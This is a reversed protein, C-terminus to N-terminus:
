QVDSTPSSAAQAAKMAAALRRRADLFDANTETQDGEMAIVGVFRLWQRADAAEASELLTTDADLAGFLAGEPGLLSMPDLEQGLENRAELEAYFMDAALGARVENRHPEDPSINHHNEM